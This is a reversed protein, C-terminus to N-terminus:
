GELPETQHRIGGREQGQVKTATCLPLSMHDAGCAVRDIIGQRDLKIRRRPELLSVRGADPMDGPLSPRARPDGITEFLAGAVLAQM